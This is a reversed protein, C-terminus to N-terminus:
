LYNDIEADEGYRLRLYSRYRERNVKGQSVAMRVACGPEGRHTCNSFQCSAVLPRLEPFYGDLEEPQTDWLALAKLGPTDAVYGGEVLPFMERVVTTHRGKGTIESVDCVALGLQPQVANLLSTKGVGSPGTFASIRGALRQHVAEIGLRLRVSTYLVPYGLPEYHGFMERARDIGVLDVKNAVILAPLGEKELIVLFRDLMRLHPAPDACAFILLIQDPNAILVQRYDGKPTPALRVLASHRPEVTEISGRGEALLSVQVRDGLAAIDGRMRGQKLKGRLQTVIQGRETQVTFFGSQCRVILGALTDM